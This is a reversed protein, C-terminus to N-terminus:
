RFASFPAGALVADFWACFDADHRWAEVVEAYSAASADRHIAFRLASGRGADSVDTSWMRRDGRSRLARPAPAAVCDHDVSRPTVGGGIACWTIPSCAHTPVWRAYSRWM